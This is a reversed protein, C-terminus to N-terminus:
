RGRDEGVTQCGLDKRRLILTRKGFDIPVPQHKDDLPYVVCYTDRIAQTMRAGFLVGKKTTALFTEGPTVISTYTGSALRSLHLEFAPDGALFLEVAPHLTDNTSGKGGAELWIRTGSHVLPNGGSSLEARVHSVATRFDTQAEDLQPRTLSNPNGCLAAVVASLALIDSARTKEKDMFLAAFAVVLAGLAPAVLNNTRGGEKLSALITFAGTGFAALAVRIVNPSSLRPGRVGATLAIAIAVVAATPTWLLDPLTSWNVVHRSM